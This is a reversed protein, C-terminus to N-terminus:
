QVVVYKRLTSPIVKKMAASPVWAPVIPPQGMSKLIKVGGEPNLVYKLFAIAARRDPADKLLAVGYTIAKGVRRIKTGIKKGSIEVVARKYFDNYRTSGLNIKAPLKVFRLQHQVAVSRYEWAYDMDGTQLLAVLEVSKPRINRLPRNKLLSHYLGKIRYYREALQMVMLARYGCPDVNPDAQGWVVKKNQLIKYWNNKNIKQHLYSQDTYCLVMQNSAFRINFDAYKPILFKDIVSDDASFMLDCPRHLDVIKRACTRSGAAERIIEVGPHKAEFAKEMKYLPLTLSGAHFIMVTGKMATKENLDSELEKELGKAVAADQYLPRGYKKVGYTRIIEQAAPSAVYDIFKRALKTNRGPYKLPNPMLAHYVNILIPDGKFLPVLHKIKAKKVYYTSNDTMFYGKERDARMLTPGMFDHTVIYWRGKPHIGTLRWVKLERKNTGSNDGRSFFKARAKAILTYAEQASKAKRIGAPDSKPGVIFFQNAGIITRHVAWGEAIAKREAAPAHVMIVDCKGAKMFALSAGSGKKYWVLRCNNARCFPVALAKLLGLAGPSGTAVVFVARGTGYVAKPSAAKAFALGHFLFVIGVFFLVGKIFRQQTEKMGQPEERGAVRIKSRVSRNGNDRGLM